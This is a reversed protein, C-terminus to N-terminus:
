VVEAFLVEAVDVLVAIEARILQKIQVSPKATYITLRLNYIARIRFDTWRTEIVRM